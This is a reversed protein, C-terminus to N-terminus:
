ESHSTRGPRRTITCDSSPDSKFRVWPWETVVELVSSRISATAIASDRSRTTSCASADHWTLMIKHSTQPFSFRTREFLHICLMHIYVGVGFWLSLGLGSILWVRVMALFMIRVSDRVIKVIKWSQKEFLFWYSSQSEMNAVFFVFFSYAMFRLAKNSSEWM